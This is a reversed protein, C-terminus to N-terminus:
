RRVIALRHIREIRPSLNALMPCHRDALEVMQRVSAEPAQSTVTATVVLRQWGVPADGTGLQGRVDYECLVDVEAGDIPVDLRASWLRYGM